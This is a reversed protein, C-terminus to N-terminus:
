RRWSAVYLAALLLISGIAVVGGIGLSSFWSGALSEEPADVAVIVDDVSDVGAEVQYTSGRDDVVRTEAETWSDGDQEYVAVESPGVGRQELATADVSATVTGSADDTGNGTVELASLPEVGDPLSAGTADGAGFALTAEGELGTVDLRDFRIADSDGGVPQLPVSDDPSADAITAAIGGDTRDYSVSPDSCSGTRVTVPEDLDELDYRDPDEADGSLVHWEDIMGGDWVDGGQGTVNEDAFEEEIEPDYLDADENFAPHITVAFHDGFGGNLAGGGTRDVIYAWSASAWGDGTEFEDQNTEGDYNDNRVVWEADHPTGVLDLTVVGGDSGGELEDHVMVLSVGDTGEHLFLLSTDSEQFHSTGYSSYLRDVDEPHTEHDRYDYFAEVSGASSLPEIPQCAGGHEVVYTETSQTQAATTEVPAIGVIGVVGGVASVVLLAAVLASAVRSTM